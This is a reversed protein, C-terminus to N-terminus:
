IGEVAHIKCATACAGCKICLEPNIHHPQKKEGTIAKSPCVRGCAGCGNCVELITYTLLAQCYHSPCKKNTIHAEYESRFYKLTTLVPNPATQGLGCLSANKIIAAMEQLLEIDGEKGKGKTINTLMELM